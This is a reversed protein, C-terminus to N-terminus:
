RAEAEKRLILKQTYELIVEPYMTQCLLVEGIYYSWAEIGGLSLELIGDFRRSLVWQRGDQHYAVALPSTEIRDGPPDLASIANRACERWDLDPESELYRLTTM